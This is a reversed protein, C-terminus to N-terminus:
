NLSYETNNSPISVAPWGITVAYNHKLIQSVSIVNVLVYKLESEFM